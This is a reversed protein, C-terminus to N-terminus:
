GDVSQISATNVPCTHRRGFPLRHDSTSPICTGRRLNLPYAWHQAVRSEKVDGIAVGLSVVKSVIADEVREALELSQSLEELQRHINEPDVEVESNSESATLSSRDSCDDSVLIQKAPSASSEEDSLANVSSNLEASSQLGFRFLPDLKPSVPSPLPPNLERRSDITARTTVPVSTGHLAITLCPNWRTATALARGALFGIRKNGSLNVTRLSSHTQLCTALPVVSVTSLGNGALNLSRMPLLPLVCLLPAIGKDGLYTSSLDMSLLYARPHDLAQLVVANPRINLLDCLQLYRPIINPVLQVDPFAVNEAQGRSCGNAVIDEIRRVVKFYAELEM